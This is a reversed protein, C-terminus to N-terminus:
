PWRAAAILTFQRRHERPSLSTARRFHVMLNGSLGM